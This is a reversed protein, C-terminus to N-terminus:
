CTLPNTEFSDQIFRQIWHFSLGSARTFFENVVACCSHCSKLITWNQYEFCLFWWWKGHLFGGSGKRWCSSHKKRCLQWAKAGSFFHAHEVWQGQMRHVGNKVHFFTSLTAASCCLLPVWNRVLRRIHATHKTKVGWLGVFSNLRTVTWVWYIKRCVTQRQSSEHVARPHQSAGTVSCHRWCCPQWCLFEECPDQGSLQLHLKEWHQNWVAESKWLNAEYKIDGVALPM